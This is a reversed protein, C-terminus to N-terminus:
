GAYARWDGTIALTMGPYQINLFLTNGDPSFCAGALESGSYANDALLVQQGDPRIGILSSSSGDSADECVILDGWPAMTLNDANTLLSGRGAEAIWALSVHDIGLNELRGDIREDIYKGCLGTSTVTQNFGKPKEGKRYRLGLGVTFVLSRASVGSGRQVENMHTLLGNLRDVNTACTDNAAQNNFGDTLVVLTPQAAKM